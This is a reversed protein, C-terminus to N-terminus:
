TLCRQEGTGIQQSKAPERNRRAPSRSPIEQDCRALAEYQWTKNMRCPKGISATSRFSRVRSDRRLRVPARMMRKVKASTSLRARKTCMNSVKPTGRAYAARRQQAVGEKKGTLEKSRMASTREEPLAMGEKKRHTNRHGAHTSRAGDATYGNSVNTGDADCSRAGLTMSATREQTTTPESEHVTSAAATAPVM